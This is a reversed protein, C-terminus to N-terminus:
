EGRIKRSNEIFADIEAGTKSTTHAGDAFLFYKNDSSTFLVGPSVILTDYVINDVTIALYPFLKQAQVYTSLLANKIRWKGSVVAIETNIGEETMGRMKLLHQLFDSTDTTWDVGTLRVRSGASMQSLIDFVPVASSVNELRLTTINRYDPLVFDAIV